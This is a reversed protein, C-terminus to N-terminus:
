LWIDHFTLTNLKTYPIRILPINNKKCWEDKIKDHNKTLNLHEESNWGQGDAYFHQRGDFELLYRNDIYFDFKAYRGTSYKCSPFTKQYEYYIKNKELLEKIKSEGFSIHSCEGCSKTNKCLLSQNRVITQNGCDCQCLYRYRNDAGKGALSLVVLKGFRKGILDQKPGKNVGKKDKLLCGCSKTKGNKLYVGSISKINGCECKCVWHPTSYKCNEDKYLVTLRNFVQGTLDIPKRGM